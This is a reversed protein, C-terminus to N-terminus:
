NKKPFSYDCLKLVKEDISKKIYNFERLTWSPIQAKFTKEKVKGSPAVINKITQFSENKRELNFQNEIKELTKIQNNQMDEFKIKQLIKPSKSITLWHKNMINFADLPNLDMEKYHWCTQTLFHGKNRGFKIKTKNEFNFLSWLWDLPHKLCVVIKLDDILKDNYYFNEKIEQTNFGHKWSPFNDLVICKFNTRLLITVLNTCSRPLGFIKIAKM